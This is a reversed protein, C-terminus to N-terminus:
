MGFDLDMQGSSEGNRWDKAHSRSKRKTQPDTEELLTPCAVHSVMVM